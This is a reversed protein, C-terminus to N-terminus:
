INFIIQYEFDNIYIIEKIILSLLQKLEMSPKDTSFSNLVEYFTEYATIKDVTTNVKSSFKEIEKELARLEKEIKINKEDFMEKEIKGDLM